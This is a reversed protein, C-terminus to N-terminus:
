NEDAADEVIYMLNSRVRRGDKLKVVTRGDDWETVIEVDEYTAVLGYAGFGGAARSQGHVFYRINM